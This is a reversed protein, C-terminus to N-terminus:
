KEFLSAAGIAPASKLKSIKIKGAPFWTYEKVTKITEDLFLDAAHSISGSLVIVEPDLVKVSDSIGLGLYFGLKKYIEKAKKNGKRAMEEIEFPSNAFLSQEKAMRMVGRGSAYEELCGRSGCFCKHGEPFITMHGFEGASGKGIYLKGGDVLGGGLGTGVTMAVFNKTGKGYGYLYEGWAMCNGDNEIKVPVNFEKKLPSVINLNKIEPLAPMKVIKGAARDLVGPFCLGIGNIKHGKSIERVISKLEEIFKKPNKETPKKLHEIIKCKDFVIGEMKTGGVDIGIFM